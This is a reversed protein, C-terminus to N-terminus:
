NMDTLVSAVVEGRRILAIGGCGGLRQWSEASSSFRWLEDGPQMRAVLDKWAANCFGFPVPMQGLREDTVMHEAEAQEVTLTKILWDKHM